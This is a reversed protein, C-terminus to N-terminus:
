KQKVCNERYGTKRRALEGFHDRILLPYSCNSRQEVTGARPDQFEQRSPYMGYILSAIFSSPRWRRPEESRSARRGCPDNLPTREGRIWKYGRLNRPGM